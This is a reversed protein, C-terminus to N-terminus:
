VTAQGGSGGNGPGRRNSATGAAWALRLRRRRDDEEVDIVEDEIPRIIFSGNPGREVIYRGNLLDVVAVEEGGVFCRARREPASVMEFRISRVDPDIIM